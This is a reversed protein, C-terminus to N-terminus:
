LKKILVQFIENLEIDKKDEDENEDASRFTDKSVLTVDTFDTWRQTM